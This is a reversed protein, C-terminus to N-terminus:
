SRPSNPLCSLALPKWVFLRFRATAGSTGATLAANFYYEPPLRKSDAQQLWQARSTDADLAYWRLTRQPSQATYTPLLLSVGRLVRTSGFTREIGRADVVPAAATM